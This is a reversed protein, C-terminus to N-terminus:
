LLFYQGMAFWQLQRAIDITEGNSHELNTILRAVAKDLHPELLRIKTTTYAPAVLLRLRRHTSAHQTTVLDGPDRNLVGYFRSKEQTHSAVHPYSHIPLIPCIETVM